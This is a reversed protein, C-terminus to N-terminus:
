ASSKVSPLPSDSDSADCGRLTARLSADTSARRRRRRHSLASESIGIAQAVEIQRYGLALCAETGDRPGLAALLQPVTPRSRDDSFREPLHGAGLETEVGPAEVFQRLQTQAARPNAGFMSWTLQPDLFVPCPAHGVMARYSSWTWEIPSAVLEAEVPNRSIYRTLTLFQRDDEVVVTRYRASFVHGVREHRRNFSRAYSGLLDRMANALDPGDTTVALHVHNPMFCYAHCRWGYRRTVRTLIAAFADWDSDELFIRGRANGRAMAHYTIGRGLVRPARGM